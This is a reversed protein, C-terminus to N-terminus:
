STAFKLFKLAEFQVVGGGTRRTTYFKVYPKETLNDRIVRFGQRDVITYATRFDGFALSLGNASLAPMDEFLVVPYGILTNPKGATLGPQWLYDGTTSGKFKRIKQVVQRRTAWMANQLYFPKFAAELDFLKDAPASAAFDGNVGTAIYELTGWSRSADATAAVPYACFGQPQGAGTGTVFATNEVRTLKDAVKNALWMEIDVNADDLLQQTAKPQAYLEHVPIRWKGLAPTTTEAPTAYENVWGGSGAEDTDKLGELADTGITQVTVYPRLNSTEFVRTVIRGSIDTPVVYGGDTDIGVSLAKREEDSAIKADGNRIARLFASKYESYQEVSVDSDVALKKGVAKRQLNFTRAESEIDKGKEGGTLASRNFKKELEDARKEAAEKAETLKDLADNIRQLKETTVVDSAGKKLESIERENTSKFEEFAKGLQTIVGQLENDEM